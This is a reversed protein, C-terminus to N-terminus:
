KYLKELVPNIHMESAKLIEAKIKIEIDKQESYRHFLFRDKALGVNQQKNQPSSKYAHHECFLGFGGGSDLDFFWGFKHNGDSYQKETIRFIGMGKQSFRSRHWTVKMRM